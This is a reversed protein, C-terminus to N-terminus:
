IAQSIEKEPVLSDIDIYSEVLPFKTGPREIWFYFPKNITVTNSTSIPYFQLGAGAKVTCGEPDCTLKLYEIADKISYQNHKSAYTLGIMWSIDLFGEYEIQPMIFANCHMKKASKMDKRLKNIKKSLAKHRLEEDAITVYVMDGSDTKIKVLPSQYNKLQYVEIDQTFQLAKVSTSRKQGSAPFLIETSKAKHPWNLAIDLVALSGFEKPGFPQFTLPINYEQALANLEKHDASSLANLENFYFPMDYKLPAINKILFKQPVNQPKWKGGNLFQGDPSILASALLLWTNFYSM